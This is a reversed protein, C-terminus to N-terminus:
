EQHRRHVSRVTRLKGKNEELTKDLHRDVSIRYKLKRLLEERDRELSARNKKINSYKTAIGIFEPNVRAPHVPSYNLMIIKNASFVVMTLLSQM